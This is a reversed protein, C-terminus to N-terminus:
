GIKKGPNPPRTVIERPASHEEATMRNVRTDSPQPAPLEVGGTAVTVGVAFGSTAWYLML